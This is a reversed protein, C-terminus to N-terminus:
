TREFPRTRPCTCPHSPRTQTLFDHADTHMRVVDTCSDMRGSMSVKLHFVFAYATQRRGACVFAGAGACAGARAGTRMGACKRTRAGM